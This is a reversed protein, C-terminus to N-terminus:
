RPRGEPKMGGWEEEMPHENLWAIVEQVTKRRPRLLEDLEDETYPQTGEVRSTTPALAVDPKPAL